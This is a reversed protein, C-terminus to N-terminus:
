KHKSKLKESSLDDEALRDVYWQGSENTPYSIDHGPLPLVLDFISYKGSAIDDETLPKVLLKFASITDQSEDAANDEEEADDEFTIGDDDVIEKTQPTVKEESVFVLDGPLLQLGQEIRKSAIENWILSQYSHIYMLLM